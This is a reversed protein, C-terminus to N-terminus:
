KLADSKEDNEKYSVIAIKEGLSISYDYVYQNKIEKGDANAKTDVTLRIYLFASSSIGMDQKFNKIMQHYKAFDVNIAENISFKTADTELTDSEKLKEAKNLIDYSKNGVTYKASVIAEIKYNYNLKAQKSGDYDYNFKLDINSILDALYTQNEEIEEEKIYENERLNIHSDTKIKNTYKYTEKIESIINTEPMFSKIFYGSGLAIIVIDLLILIKRATASIKIRNSLKIQRKGKM